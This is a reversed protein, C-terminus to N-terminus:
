PSARAETTGGLHNGRIAESPRPNGRIGESASQL